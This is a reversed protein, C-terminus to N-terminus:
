NASPLQEKAEKAKEEVKAVEQKAINEVIVRSTDSVKSGDPTYFHAVLGGVAQLVAVGATVMPVTKPSVFPMTQNAIQISAGIFQGVLNWSFKM